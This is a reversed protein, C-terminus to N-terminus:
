LEIEVMGIPKGSRSSRFFNLLKVYNESDEIAPLADGHFAKRAIPKSVLRYEFPRLERGLAAPDIVVVCDFDNPDSKATVFGGGVLLRKVIGSEAAEQLLERLHGFVKRRAFTGPMTVFREEFKSLSARHIGEPLFGDETFEPIM